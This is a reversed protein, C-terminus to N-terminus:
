VTTQPIFLTRCSSSTHAKYPGFLRLMWHWDLSTSILLLYMSLPCVPKLDSDRLGAMAVGTSRGSGIPVQGVVDVIVLFKVGTTTLWGYAALREDVAHLLGLDQDIATQKQRIEFIDLCSNLLFSFEIISDMYPPFLSIHLPEDKASWNACIGYLCLIIGYLKGLWVSAHSGLDQWRSKQETRTSSSDMLQSAAQLYVTPFCHYSPHNTIGPIISRVVLTVRSKRIQYECGQCMNIQLTRPGLLCM